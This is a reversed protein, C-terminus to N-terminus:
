LKKGESKGGRKKCSGRWIHHFIIHCRTSSYLVVTAAVCRESEHPCFFISFSEAENRNERMEMASEGTDEEEECGAM